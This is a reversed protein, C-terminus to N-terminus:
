SSQIGSRILVATFISYSIYSNLFVIKCVTSFRFFLFYSVEESASNVVNLNKRLDSVQFFYLVLKCTVVCVVLSLIHFVLLYIIM